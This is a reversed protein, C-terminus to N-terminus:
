LTPDGSPEEEPLGGVALTLSGVVPNVWPNAKEENYEFGLSADLQFPNFGLYPKVFVGFGLPIAVFPAEQQPAKLTLTGAVTIKNGTKDGNNYFDCKTWEGKIAGGISWVPTVQFGSLYNSVGVETEGLGSTSKSFEVKQPFLPALTVKEFNATASKAPLTATIASNSNGTWTVSSGSGSIGGSSASWTPLTGDGNEIGSVANLTKNQDTEVCKLTGRSKRTGAHTSSDTLEVYSVAPNASYGVGLLISSMGAVAFQYKIFNM